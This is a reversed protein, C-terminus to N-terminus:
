HHTIKKIKVKQKILVWKRWSSNKWMKAKKELGKWNQKILFGNLADDGEEMQQVILVLFSGVADTVSYCWWRFSVQTARHLGFQLLDSHGPDEELIGWLQVHLRFSEVPEEPHPPVERLRFMKDQSGQLYFSVHVVQFFLENKPREKFNSDMVYVLRDFHYVCFECFLFLLYIINFLTDWM